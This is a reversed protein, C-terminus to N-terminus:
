GQAHVGLHVGAEMQTGPVLAPINQESLFVIKYVGSMM